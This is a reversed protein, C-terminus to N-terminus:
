SFRRRRRAFWWILLSVFILIFVLVLYPAVVALVSTVFSVIEEITSVVPNATGATAATVVPRAASKAAHVGGAVIVGCVAALAPHLGVVDTSAAFLIAGAAPRIFTHVIDDVTDVVPIKDVLLEILLLFGLVAMVWSNSLADYPESLTVLETFRALLAVVLLPIYASLGAATSLGFATALTLFAQATM